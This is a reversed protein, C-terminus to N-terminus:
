RRERWQPMEAAMRERVRQASVGTIPHHIGHTTIKAIPIGAEDMARWWGEDYTAVTFFRRPPPPVPKPRITPRL